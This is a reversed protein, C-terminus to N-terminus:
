FKSVVGLFEDVPFFVIAPGLLSATLLLGGRRTCMATLLLPVTGFLMAAAALMVFLVVSDSCRGRAIHRALERVSGHHSYYLILIDRTASAKQM